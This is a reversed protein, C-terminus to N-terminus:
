FTLQAGVKVLRGALIERANLWQPGYRTNMTLVDSANFLNYLDFNGELRVKGM